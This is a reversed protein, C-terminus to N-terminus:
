IGPFYITTNDFVVIGNNQLFSICSHLRKDDWNLLNLLEIFEYQNKDIISLLINSDSNLEIPMFVILSNKDNKNLISPILKKDNLWNIAEPIDKDRIKWNIRNIKFYSKITSLSLISGNEKILDHSILFIENALNQIYKRRFIFPSRIKQSSNSISSLDIQSKLNSLYSNIVKSSNIHSQFNKEINSIGDKLIRKKEIEDLKTYNGLQNSFEEFAQNKPNSNEETM